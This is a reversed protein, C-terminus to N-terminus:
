LVSQWYRNITIEKAYLFVRVHGSQEGTEGDNGFASAALIKGDASLSVSQGFQDSFGEGFIAKGLNEWKETEENWTYIRVNGPYGSGPAGVALINGDASLSVSSGSLNTIAWGDIDQGRQVWTMSNTDWDYVRVHGHGTSIGATNLPAGIAVTNGDASIDVSIGSQDGTAEGDIDAGRQEWMMSGSNWDFVRAHGKLLDPDTNLPDGAILTTGASSLALSTGFSSPNSEGVIDVDMQDWMETGSNWEYVRVIGPNVIPASAAIINGDSSISVDTGFNGNDSLGSITQGRQEWVTNQADWEYVQVKGRSNGAGNHHSAGVIVTNGDATIDVSIGFRENPDSVINQGRQIWVANQLDYDYVKVYGEGSPSGAVVTNGDASIAVESGFNDNEGDGDLDQGRQLWFSM